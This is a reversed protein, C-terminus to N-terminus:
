GVLRRIETGTVLEVCLLEPCATGEDDVLTIPEEVCVTTKVFALACDPVVPEISESGSPIYFQLRVSSAQAEITMRFEFIM